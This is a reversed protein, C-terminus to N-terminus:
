AFRAASPARFAPCSNWARWAKARRSARSMSTSPAPAPGSRATRWRRIPLAAGYGSSSAQYAAPPSYDAQAPGITLQMGEYFFFDRNDWFEKPVFPQLKAVDDYTIVDGERFTPVGAGADEAAQGFATLALATQLCAASVLLIPLNRQM